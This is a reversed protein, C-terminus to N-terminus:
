LLTSNDSFQVEGGGKSLFRIPKRDGIIIEEEEEQEEM